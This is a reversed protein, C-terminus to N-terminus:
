YWAQWPFDVYFRYFDPLRDPDVSLRTALLERLGKENRALAVQFLDGLASTPDFPESFSIEWLLHRLEDPLPLQNGKRDAAAASFGAGTFLVLEGRSAQARLRQLTRADIAM